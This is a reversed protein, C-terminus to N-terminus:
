RPREPVHNPDEFLLHCVALSHVHQKGTDTPSRADLQIGMLNRPNRILCDVNVAVVRRRSNTHLVTPERELQGSVFFDKVLWFSHLRPRFYLICVFIGDYMTAAYPIRPLRSKVASQRLKPSRM